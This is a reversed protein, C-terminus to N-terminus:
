QNLWYTCKAVLTKNKGNWGLTDYNDSYVLFFDSVPAFRWQLRSNVNLNEFQSNYQVYTTWYLNKTFTFDFKPGIIVVDNKGEPLRIRNYNINVSLLLLPQFRYSVEGRMSVLSGNYYQGILPQATFTIKKRLDSVITATYNFYRYSSGKPLLPLQGNGRLADFSDFLHTFNLNFQNLIRFSSRFALLLFPGAQLDTLGFDLKNYQDYAIGYSIRQLVSASPFKNFGITPALHLMNNRPVFGADSQYGAGLYEHSWKLIWKNTTYNLSAGVAIPQDGTRKSAFSHHYFLKGNWKNDKSQLNYEIGAVRSYRQEQDSPQYDLVTKNILFTALNSRDFVRRSASIVSYNSAQIGRAPDKGTQTNLLGIRWNDDIKGSLRAGYLIPTQVNTGTITDFAFGIKRSFFPTFIQNGSSVPGGSAPPVFPNTLFSGFGTFMDTNEIFFQRQEPFTIDFRTLNIQQRDAEVTSFDPNVTLDLNLGSTVAVKADAGLNFKGKSTNQIQDWTNNGSIYPIFSLNRGIKKLPYEFEIPVTFGLSMLLISQPMRQLSSTENSQTDFRYSKFNWLKSNERYRLTALPIRMECIYYHDYIKSATQWKNDWFFNAFSNDTAGNFFLAERMVGFPNTGFMFGNTNDHYTDFVFTINDNGGARFDRRLSPTVYENGGSYAKAALYINQDDYVIFIETDFKARVSDAPFYQWMKGLPKIDSWFSEDLVGDLKVPGQVKKV